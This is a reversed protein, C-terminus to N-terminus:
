GSGSTVLVTVGLGTLVSIMRYTSDRFDERYSPALALEFGSLSDIVVRKAKLRDVTAAIARRRSRIYQTLV